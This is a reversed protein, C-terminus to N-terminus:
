PQEDGKKQSHNLSPCIDATFVPIGAAEYKTRVTSPLQSDTLICEARILDCVKMLYVKDFCSSSCLIVTHAALDAMTRQVEVDELGCSTVCSTVGSLLSIGSPTLFYYNAHYHRLQELCTTGITSLEKGHVVGGALIVTFGPTDTLEGAVAISNTIVTLKEYHSKLVRAIELSTTGADLAISDGETIFRCVLQAAELKNEQYQLEREEFGLTSTDIEELVAGGYVKKLCGEKDLHDLDRRITESSVHFLEALEAVKVAHKQRLLKMIYQYREDALM